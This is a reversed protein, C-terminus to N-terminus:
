CPLSSTSFDWGEPSGDLLKPPLSMDVLFCEYVKCVRGGYERGRSPFVHRPDDIKSGSVEDAPDDGDNGGSTTTTTTTTRIRPLFEDVDVEREPGFGLDKLMAFFRRKLQGGDREVVGIYLAPHVGATTLTTGTPGRWLLRHITHVLPPLVAPWQLVDACVLADFSSGGGRIKSLCEDVDRANGWLLQMCEVSDLASMPNIVSASLNKSLVGEVVGENGDTSIVNLGARGSVRAYYELLAKTPLGVGAGLEVVNFFGGTAAENNEIRRRLPKYNILFNSVLVSVPWVITGTLDFDTSASPSCFLRVDHLVVEEEEEEEEEEEKAKDEELVVLQFSEERYDEISISFLDCLCMDESADPDEM